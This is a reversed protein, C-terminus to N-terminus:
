ELYGLQRYPAHGHGHEGFEEGQDATFIVVTDPGIHERAAALLDPFESDFYRLEEDYATRMQLQTPAGRWGALYPAHPDLYHVYLFLPNESSRQREELWRTVQRSVRQARAYHRGSESNLEHFSDYGRDFGSSIGVNSFNTVVAATEYGRELLAEALTPFEARLRDADDVAGHEEPLLGTFMSAMSSKTYTANSTVDGFVLSEEAWANLQPMLSPDGGYAALGDARLADVVVFLIPPGPASADINPRPVTPANLASSEEGDRWLAEWIPGVRMGMALFAPTALIKHHNLLHWRLASSETYAVAVSGALVFAAIWVGGTHLTRALCFYLVGLAILHPM